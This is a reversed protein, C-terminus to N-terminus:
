KQPLQAPPAAQQAQQQAKITNEIITAAYNAQQRVRLYDASLFLLIIIPVALALTFKVGWLLGVEAAAKLRVRFSESM